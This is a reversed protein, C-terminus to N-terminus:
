LTVLFITVLHYGQRHFSLSQAGEFSEVTPELDGQMLHM